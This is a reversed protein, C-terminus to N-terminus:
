IEVGAATKLNFRELVRHLTAVFLSVPLLSILIVAAAAPWEFERELAFFDRLMVPIVRIQTGSLVLPVV